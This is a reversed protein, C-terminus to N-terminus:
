KFNIMIHPRTLQKRPAGVVASSLFFPTRFRAVGVVFARRRSYELIVCRHWAYLAGLIDEVAGPTRSKSFRRGFEEDDTTVLVEVNLAEIAYAVSKGNLRSFSLVM